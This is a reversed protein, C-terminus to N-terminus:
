SDEPAFVFPYTVVMVGGDKPKPFTWTRVRDAVCTELEPNNTTADVITSSSVTGNATITFKVRMRGSLKPYRTLQREYCYRIGWSNQKIVQRIPEKDEATGMSKMERWPEGLIDVHEGGRMSFRLVVTLREGEYAEFPWKNLESLLCEHLPESRFQESWPDLDALHGDKGITFGFTIGATTRDAEQMFCPVLKEKNAAVVADIAEFQTSRPGGAGLRAHLMTRAQIGGAGDTANPM